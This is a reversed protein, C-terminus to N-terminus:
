LVAAAEYVLAPPVDLTRALESVAERGQGVIRCAEEAGVLFVAAFSDCRAEIARASHADRREGFAVCDLMAHALEHALRFSIRYQRPDDLSRVDDPENPAAEDDCVFRYTGNGRPVVCAELGAETARLRKVQV